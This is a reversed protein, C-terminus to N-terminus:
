DEWVADLLVTEGPRLGSLVELRGPEWERTKVLRRLVTDGDTLQVMELQGIRHVVEAPLLVAERPELNVWMRGFTGPLIEGTADNLRVRVQQTRTGPDIESVIETVTGALRKAPRDLAIEVEHGIRIRDILRVPVSAELRMNAADYLVLLIQGPNALDGVEVRRDTVVGDIPARISTYTLMVKARELGAQASEYASRAADLAQQTAAKTEFLSETRKFEAEAQTLQAQASRLQERLERDDLTILEQDAAVRGGASVHVDSVYAPIRSSLHIKEESTVTGVVDIRPSIETSEVVLTVADEPLAPREREMTGPRIKPRCAGTTWVIMLGLGLIGAWIRWARLIGALMRTLQERKM